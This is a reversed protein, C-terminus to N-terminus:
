DYSVSMGFWLGLATYSVMRVVDEPWAISARFSTGLAWGESLQWEKAAGLAIAPGPRTGSVVFNTMQDVYRVQSFLLSATVTTAIQELVYAGTAGLSITTLTSPGLPAVIADGELEPDMSSAASLEGGVILGPRIWGGVLVGLGLGWGSLSSTTGEAGHAGLHLLTPGATLRLFIGDGTEPEVGEDDLLLFELPRQNRTGLPYPAPSPYSFAPEAFAPYDPYTPPPPVPTTSPSPPLPGLEDDEDAPVPVPPAWSPLELLDPPPQKVRTPHRPALPKLDRWRPSPTPTLVRAGSQASAMPAPGLWGLGALAFTLLIQRM